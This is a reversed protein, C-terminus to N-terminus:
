LIDKLELSAAYIDNKALNDHKKNVYDIAEKVTLQQKVMADIILAQTSIQEIPPENILQKELVLVYEGKTIKEDDKIQEYVNEITGYWNREFKKTMDSAISLLSEPFHEMLREVFKVIRKPSEYFIITTIPNSKIEKLAKNFKSNDRPLFGYFMFRDTVVGSTALANVIASAGPIGIVNINAEKAEKVLIAGPDSICPTGADSVLAINLGDQLKNIIELSRQKENFKHYSIMRTKIDYANLLKITHRTDEAVILDVMALVEVARSTMDNLNGIPTAVVYLTGM